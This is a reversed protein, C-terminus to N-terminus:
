TLTVSDIEVFGGNEPQSTTLAFDLHSGDTSKCRRGITPSSQGLYRRFSQALGRLENSQVGNFTAEPLMSRLM